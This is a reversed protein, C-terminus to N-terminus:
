VARGMFIIAMAFLFAADALRGSRDIKRRAQRSASHAHQEDIEIRLGVGRTREAEFGDVVVANVAREEPSPETACITTGCAPFMEPHDGFM